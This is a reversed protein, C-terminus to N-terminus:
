WEANHIQTTMPMAAMAVLKARVGLCQHCDARHGTNTNIYHNSVGQHRISAATLM